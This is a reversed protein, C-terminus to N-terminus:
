VTTTLPAPFSSVNTSSCSFWDGGNQASGKATEPVLAVNIAPDVQAVGAGAAPHEPAADATLMSVYRLPLAFILPEVIVKVVVSM